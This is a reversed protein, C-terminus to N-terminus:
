NNAFGKQTVKQFYSKKNGKISNNCSSLIKLISTELKQNMLVKSFDKTMFPAHNGRVKKQKLSAHKNLVDQSVKTCISYM